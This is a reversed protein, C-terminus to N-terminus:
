SVAADGFYVYDDTPLVATRASSTTVIKLNQVGAVSLDFAASSGAAIRRSAILKEDAYVDVTSTLTPTTGDAMGALMTFRTYEGGLAWTRYESNRPDTDFAASRPYFVGDITAHDSEYRANGAPWGLEDLYTKDGAGCSTRKAADETLVAPGGVAQIRGIAYEEIALNVSQPVCDRPFLLLPSGERGAKAGVSVADAFSTGSVVLARPVTAADYFARLVATATEYRDRGAVRDVAGTTFSALQEAVAAPVAGESGLVTIKAPNLRTLEAATAAPVGNGDVLLLPVGLKAAAASGTLADPYNTGTAVLVNAVGTAYSAASLNAATEYRNAGGIRSLRARTNQQLWTTVDASLASEGGVVVVEQAYGIRERVEKTLQGRPSLYVNAQQHGAVAAATLGDPFDEGTVVYARTKELPNDEMLVATLYRDAGYSRHASVPTAGAPGALTVAATAALVAAASLRRGTRATPRHM